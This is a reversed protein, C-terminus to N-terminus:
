IAAGADTRSGFRFLTDWEGETLRFSSNRWLHLLTARDKPDIVRTGDALRHIRIPLGTIKIQGSWEPYVESAM